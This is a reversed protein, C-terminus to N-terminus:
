SGLSSGLQEVGRRSSKAARDVIPAFKFKDVKPRTESYKTLIKRNTCMLSMPVIFM